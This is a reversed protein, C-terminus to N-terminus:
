LFTSANLIEGHFLCVERRLGKQKRVDNVRYRSNQSEPQPDRIHISVQSQKLDIAADFAAYASDNEVEIVELGIYEDQQSGTNVSWKFDPSLLNLFCYCTKM